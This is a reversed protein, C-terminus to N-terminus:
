EPDVVDVAAGRLGGEQEPVKLARELEETVVVKGRSINVLFPNRGTKQLIEFEERGMLGKTADTLPVSLLIVDFGVKLFDHFSKRDAGSYWKVPFEGEPDGTGGVIYGDDRRSEPTPRPSATYAHVEMGLAHAVRGCQRGISGYSFIGIRQKVLDRIKFNSFSGWHHEKQWQDLLRFKHTHALVHGMVRCRLPNSSSGMSIFNMSLFSTYVM